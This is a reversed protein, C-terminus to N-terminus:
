ESITIKHKMVTAINKAREKIETAKKGAYLEDVTESFLTTWHEFHQHTLTTKQMLNKHAIMPSGNYNGTYFLINEWFDYMIPLHKAWNVKAVDTFIFGIVEDTKIKEYFVDVLKIIDNRNKIDKM